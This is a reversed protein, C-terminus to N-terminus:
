LNKLASTHKRALTIDFRAQVKRWSQFKRTHRAGYVYSICIQGFSMQMGVFTTSFVMRMKAM